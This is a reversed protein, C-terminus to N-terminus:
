WGVRARYEAPGEIPFPVQGRMARLDADSSVLVDAKGVYAAVIFMQDKEDRCMPLALTDDLTEIREAFPLYRSALLSVDDQQLRFKPYALVKLFERATDRTILPVVSGSQWHSVLWALTGRFLLASVVTSTDFVARM